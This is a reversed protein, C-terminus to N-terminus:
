AKWKMEDVDKTARADLERLLGAVMEDSYGCQFGKVAIISGWNYNAERLAQRTLPPLNDFNLMDGRRALRENM